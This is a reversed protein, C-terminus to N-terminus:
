SRMNSMIVSVGGLSILEQGIRHANEQYKHDNIVQFAVRRIEESTFDAVSLEEGAGAKVISQANYKREFVKGPCILLPVGYLLGDAISNQGGHNIFLLSQSMYEDFNFFPAIYINNFTQEKLGQGAIYVQYATNEFARSVEKVMKRQSITGNGMYVLIKDREASNNSISNKFTGCFSVKPDEMPELEKCSPVFKKEAFDFLELCSTLPPLGYERLLKNLGKAYKPNHSYKHQTPYSASIYLTVKELKAALMASINFESYVIDPQFAKIAKRIDEVSQKLYAYDTNGTLHLVEDFSDVSRFRNVGLRQVIPFIHTGVFSPMGMPSPVTLYYNEIGEIPKYNVDQAQCTAVVLGEKQMERAICRTRYSPGATPAMAAMPVILVRM